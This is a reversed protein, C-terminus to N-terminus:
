QFQSANSNLWFCVLVVVQLRQHKKAVSNWTSQSGFEFEPKCCDVCCVSQRTLVKQRTFIKFLADLSVVECYTLRGNQVQCSRWSHSLAWWIKLESHLNKSPNTNSLYLTCKTSPFVWCFTHACQARPSTTKTWVRLTQQRWVQGLSKCGLPLHM